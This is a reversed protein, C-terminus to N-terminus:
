KWDRVFVWSKMYGYPELTPILENEKYIGYYNGLDSTRDRFYGPQVLNVLALLDVRHIGARLEIINEDTELHIRESLVM